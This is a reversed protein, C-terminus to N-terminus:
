QNNLINYLAVAAEARTVTKDGNFCDKDDGTLAGTATSIAVAPKHAEEIEDKYDYTVFIDPYDRLQDLAYYTLIYEALEYRTITKDDASETENTKDIYYPEYSYNNFLSKLEGLTIAQDPRFLTDNIKYGNNFLATVYKESWHGKVDDIGAETTEKQPEGRRNLRTKSSSDM